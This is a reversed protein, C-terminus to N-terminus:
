KIDPTITFSKALERQYPFRNAFIYIKKPKCFNWFDKVDKEKVFM